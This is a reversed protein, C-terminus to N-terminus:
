PLCQLDDRMVDMLCTMAKALHKEVASISVGLRSAVEAQPMGEIRCYVFVRRTRDPLTLIAKQLREVAERGQLVREPSFAADEIQDESIIEVKNLQHAFRYRLRDRLLNAALQFVYGELNRIDGLDGKRTLRLFVEQVLDDVDAHELIRRQFFRKLAPAFTRALTEISKLAEEDRQERM